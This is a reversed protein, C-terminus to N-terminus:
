GFMMDNYEGSGPPYQPPTNDEQEEEEENDFSVLHCGWPCVWAEHGGNTCIKQELAKDWIHGALVDNSLDASNALGREYAQNNFNGVESKDYAEWEAFCVVLFNRDQKAINDMVNQYAEQSHSWEWSM